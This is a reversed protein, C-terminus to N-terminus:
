EVKNVEEDIKVEAMEESQTDVDRSVGTEDEITDDKDEENEEDNDFQVENVENVVTPTCDEENGGKLIESDGITDSGVGDNKGESDESGESIMENVESSEGWVTEYDRM